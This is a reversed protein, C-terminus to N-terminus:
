PEDRLSRANGFAEVYLATYGSTVDFIRRLRPYLKLEDLVPLSSSALSRVGPGPEYPEVGLTSLLLVRDALGAASRDAIFVKFCESARPKPELRVDLGVEGLSVGREEGSLLM